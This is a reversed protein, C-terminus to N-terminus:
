ECFLFHSHIAPAHSYRPHLLFVLISCFSVSCVFIDIIPVIFLILEPEWARRALTGARMADLSISGVCLMTGRIKRRLAHFRLAFHELTAHFCIAHPPCPTERRLLTWHPPTVIPPIDPVTKM